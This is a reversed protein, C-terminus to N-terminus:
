RAWCPWSAELLPSGNEYRFSADTPSRPTLWSCFPSTFKVDVFLEDLETQLKQNSAKIFRRYWRRQRLEEKSLFNTTTEESKGGSSSTNSYSRRQRRSISQVLQSHIILRCHCFKCVAIDRWLFHPSRATSAGAIQKVCVSRLAASVRRSCAQYVGVSLIRYM